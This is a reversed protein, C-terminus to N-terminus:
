ASLPLHVPLFNFLFSSGSVTKKPSELRCLGIETWLVYEEKTVKKVLAKPARWCFKIVIDFPALFFTIYSNSSQESKMGQERRTFLGSDMNKRAVVIHSKMIGETRVQVFPELGCKLSLSHLQLYWLKIRNSHKYIAYQLYLIIRQLNYFMNWKHHDVAHGEFAIVTEQALRSNFSDFLQLLNEFMIILNHLINIDDM